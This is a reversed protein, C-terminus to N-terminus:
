LRKYIWKPIYFKRKNIIVGLLNGSSSEIEQKAKRVVQRRTKGCELMLIVGDVHRSIIQADSCITVAPADLIVYDFRRRMQGLFGPLWESEFLSASAPLDGNCTIVYLNGRDVSNLNAEFKKKNSFIDLLGQTKEIDFLRHLGPARFNLDILLIKLQYSEALSSAFGAATTSSGEGHVASTFMVTKISDNTHQAQLKTKLEEFWKPVAPIAVPASPFVWVDKQTYGSLQPLNKNLEQEAKLLAEHTKGM